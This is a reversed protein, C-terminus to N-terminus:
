QNGGNGCRQGQDNVGSRVSEKQERETEVGVRRPRTALWRKIM